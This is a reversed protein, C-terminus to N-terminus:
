VVAPHFEDFVKDLEVGKGDIIYDGAFTSRPVPKDSSVRNLKFLKDQILGIPFKGSNEHRILVGSVTSELGNEHEILISIPSHVSNLM